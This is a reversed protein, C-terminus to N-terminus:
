NHMVMVKIDTMEELAYKVGERGFGSHKIGGYPFNDVRFTPVENVMVGGVELRKFATFIKEIDRTFIGAQLGYDSNNVEALAKDFSTYPFLVTVPGFIECRVCRAHDPVRALVTPLYINGSYTGGCLVEGGLQRAEEVWEHIREAEGPQILPGVFTEESLPDGTKIAEVQEIFKKEFESYINEHVYIRQLGICVQGAYVYGGFVSRAVALNIDADPEVVVAANGGLELSIKKRGCIHKLKWGVDPSGTFSVMRIREDTVMKEALGASCPLINVAGEPLGAELLAEGLKLATLPTASSPKHVVTNGAALAPAIKHAVLNLPFNFPTIALVPGIPFRRTIAIRNGAAPTIDLPLVEGGMRTAEEAALSFTTVARQVEARAATIPKGAELAISRALEDNRKQLLDATNSLLVAREHSARNRTVAFAKVAAKLAEGIQAEGARYVDAVATGDYPSCVPMRIDTQRWTNNILIKNQEAM